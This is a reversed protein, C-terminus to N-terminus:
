RRFGELSALSEEFLRKRDNFADRESQTLSDLQRAERVAELAIQLKEAASDITEGGFGLGPLSKENRVINPVTREAFEAFGEIAAKYHSAASDHDRRALYLHAQFTETPVIEPIARVKFVPKEEVRVLREAALAAEDFRGHRDLEDMMAKLALLNNSDRRLAEVLQRLGRETQNEAFLLYALTRHNRMTPALRAASELFDVAESKSQAAAYSWYFVDGDFPYLTRLAGLTPRAMTEEGPMAFRSRVSAKMSDGVVVYLFVLATGFALAALVNRFPRLLVEPTVADTSLQLGCGLLVFLGVLTGFHQLDSDVVNHALGAAVSAAVASKMVLVPLEAKRSGRFLEIVWAVILAALALLSVIGSEAALQLYGQHATHTQPTLGPRTSEYRFSGAGWGAPNLKTLEAATRWLMARFGASQESTSASDAIRGVPANVGGHSSAQPLTVVFVLATTAAFVAAFRAFRNGSGEIRSTWIALGVVMVAFGALGALIGGKSQTLFLATGILSTGAASAIAEARDAILTLGIGVFLGLLLMGALANPNIWTSFIRWTPDSQKTMGYELIGVAATAVCGAFLSGAVLIPGRNRGAVASLTFVSIIAILMQSAAILAAPKFTAWLVSACTTAALIALPAMIALFPIQLVRKTFLAALYAGLIALTPIIQGLLPFGSGDILGWLVSQGESPMSLDTSLQGGGIPLWFVGIMLIALIPDLRKM